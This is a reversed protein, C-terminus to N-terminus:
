CKTLAFPLRQKVHAQVGPDQVTEKVYDWKSAEKIEIGELYINAVPGSICM